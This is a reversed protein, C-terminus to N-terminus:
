RITRILRQAERQYLAARQMLVVAKRVATVNRQRIARSAAVEAVLTVLFPTNKSKHSM